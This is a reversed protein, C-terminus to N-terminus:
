VASFVHQAARPPPVPPRRVLSDWAEHGVPERGTAVPTALALSIPPLPVCWPLANWFWASGQCQQQLAIVLTQRSEATPKSPLAPAAKQCHSCGKTDCLAAPQEKRAAAVVYDPPTLRQKRAWAVKQSNSFCCCRKWCQEANRCGCARHQCPFPTSLDKGGASENFLPLPVLSACVGMLVFLSTLRRALNFRITQRRIFSM